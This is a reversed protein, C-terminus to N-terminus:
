FACVNDLHIDDLDYSRFPSRSGRLCLLSSRTIEMSIRTRLWTMVNPYDNETKICLKQALEKLFRSCENGLGGNTGFILPTFSGHEVQLVRDLYERKKANEHKRFIEATKQNKASKSNVHTIRVDFFATEGKRWFGNAKIDLRAEESTNASKLDFRENTIPILHPEVMVDKCVKNLCVTLLDRINDHRSSIFGGKKCSLAHVENFKEGCPCFTPLNSLPVNYRLRIADKFEEKNLDLNQEELPLTNLWSSAGKDCSQEVVPKLTDPLNSYITEFSQRSTVSKEHLVQSKLEKFTLGNEDRQELKPYQCIIADTHIKTIKKSARHQEKAENAIIPIGLGGQSTNLALLDRHEAIISFENGFLIPLFKNNLLNDVPEVFEEFGEITRLFYTFKSRYGKTYAAYAAQPQTEAIYCLNTLEDVWNKVLDECYEKKFNESGLVAGLHRKGQATIKVSDGFVEKAKEVMQETKVILWCKTKNVYYGYLSGIEELHQYWAKLSSLNGAATADDALWVQKVSPVLERLSNIINVTSLSYWPMALPDGQTTGERSMIKEGGCIFLTAPRRYTNILYMSLLPCTVQINHLAVSRNLCNFANKADILLVADTSEQQFIERMSHIAAEAGAGHGACTQM